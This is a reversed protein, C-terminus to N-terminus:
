CPTSVTRGPSTSHLQPNGVLWFVKCPDKGQCAKVTLAGLAQGNAYFGIGIQAVLGPIQVKPLSVNPGCPVLVCAVKVGKRIASKIEPVLM